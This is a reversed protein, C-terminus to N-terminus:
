ADLSIRYMGGCMFVPSGSPPNEVLELDLTRELNYNTYGTVSITQNHLLGSITADLSGAAAATAAYARVFYNEDRLDSPNINQPGGSQLSFLVYPLIAGETAQNRYVGVGAGLVTGATLKSYIASAVLNNISM